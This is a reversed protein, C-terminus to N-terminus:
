QNNPLSNRSAFVHRKVNVAMMARHLHKVEAQKRLRREGDLNLKGGDGFETSLPSKAFRGRRFLEDM